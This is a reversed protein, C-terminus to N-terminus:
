VSVTAMTNTNSDKVSHLILEDLSDFKTFAKNYIQGM